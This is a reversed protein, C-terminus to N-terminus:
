WDASRFFVLVLGEPGRLDEFGRQKGAQDVLEFSPLPQGLAPGVEPPGAAGDASLGLALLFAPFALM